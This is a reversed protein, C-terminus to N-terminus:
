DRRRAERSKTVVFINAKRGSKARLGKEQRGMTGSVYSHWEKSGPKLGLAKARLKLVGRLEELMDRIEEETLLRAM